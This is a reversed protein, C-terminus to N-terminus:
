PKTGTTIQGAAHPTGNMWVAGGVESATFIYLVFVCVMIAKTLYIAIRFRNTRRAISLLMFKAHDGRAREFDGKVEVKTGAEARQLWRGLDGWVVRRIGKLCNWMNMLCLLGIIMTLGIFCKTFEDKMADTKLLGALDSAHGALVTTITLILSNFTLIQGFKNDLVSLHGGMSDIDVSTTDPTASFLQRYIAFHVRWDELRKKWCEHRPNRRHWFLKWEEKPRDLDELFEIAKGFDRDVLISKDAM